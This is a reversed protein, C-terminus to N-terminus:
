IKYLENQVKRLTQVNFDDNKDLKKDIEEVLWDGIENFIEFIDNRDTTPSIAKMLVLKMKDQKEPYIDSFLKYCQYLDRTWVDVKDYVLEFGCRIMRKSIWGMMMRIKDPNLTPEFLSNKIRNVIENLDYYYKPIIDKKFKPIEDQVSEGYICVSQHKITFMTDIFSMNINKDLLDKYYTGQEYGFDIKTVFPYENKIDKNLSLHFQKMYYELSQNWKDKFLIILDIDSLNDVAEGNAVSGRM